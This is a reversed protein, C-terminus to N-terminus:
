MRVVSRAFRIRNRVRLMRERNQRDRERYSNMAMRWTAFLDEEPEHDQFPRALYSYYVVWGGRVANFLISGKVLRM